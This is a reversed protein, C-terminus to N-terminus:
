KNISNNKLLALQGIHYALHSTRSLLVNLKNRHPEKVFDETSVLTHRELLQEFNLTELKLLLLTHVENWQKRLSTISPKELESNDPNKIFVDVLEPYLSEGLGLLPLMYDNVAILHGLLYHGTNKSSSVEKKLQEDSLTEMLNTASKVSNKFNDFVIKFALNNEKNM